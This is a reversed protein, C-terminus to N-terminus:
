KKRFALIGWTLHGAKGAKVWNDLGILMRDLYASSANETLRAYNAKLEIAVNGYHTPLQKSLDDIGVESFGIEAAATKYFGFSGLNSLHIRDYVPQLVGDPVDDAQMPDTFVMIGGPKLVRHAEELVKRRNGSHLIADQSWVVDFTSDPEPIDEFSGHVVTIKDALGQEASLRTNTDNQVKSINLCHVKCGYTKALHRAAGGYGSGIDLVTSDPGLGDLMGAMREVTRASAERIDATEDYLGIHIDEGGWITYYFHDADGSDYYSEAVETVADWTKATSETTDPM